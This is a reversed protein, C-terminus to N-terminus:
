SDQIIPEGDVRQWLWYKSDKKCNKRKRLFNALRNYSRKRMRWENLHQTEIIGDPLMSVVEDSYLRKEDMRLDLYTNIFDSRGRFGIKSFLNNNFSFNKNHVFYEKYGM